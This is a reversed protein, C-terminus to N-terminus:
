RLRRRSEKSEPSFYPLTYWFEFKAYVGPRSYECSKWLQCGTVSQPMGNEIVIGAGSYPASGHTYVITGVTVGM